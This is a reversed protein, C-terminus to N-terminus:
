PRQPDHSRRHRRRVTGAMTPLRGPSPGEWHRNVDRRAMLLCAVLAAILAALAFAALAPAAPDEEPIRPVHTMPATNRLWQPLDLTQAFVGVVASHAVVVWTLPSLRASAGVVLAGLGLVVWVAPMQAVVIWALDTVEYDAGAIQAGLALGVGGLALLATAIGLTVATALLQWRGRGVPRALVADLRGSTEERALRGLLATGCSIALVALLAAAFRLVGLVNADQRGLVVAAGQAGASEIEAAVLGFAIGLAAMVLGWGIAAGRLHSVLLGAPRTLWRSASAPGPRQQWIGAGSDRRERLLATVGLLLLLAASGLALPGLDPEDFPRLAQAWALPSAWRAAPNGMDAAGRVLFAVLLLILTATSASGPQEYVEAAVLAIGAFLVGALALSAGYAVAGRWPLGAAWMGTASAGGWCLAQGAVVIFAATEPACRGVRGAGLLEAGGEAELARTHRVATLLSLAAVLVLLYGGIEFVVVGGLSDIRAGPSAGPGNFFRQVPSAKMAASYAALAQPTSMTDRFSRTTAALLAALLAAWAATPIIERRAALRILTPTGALRTM